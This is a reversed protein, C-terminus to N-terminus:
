GMMLDTYTLGKVHKIMDTSINYNRWEGKEEFYVHKEDSIMDITYKKGCLNKMNTIFGFLCKISSGSMGFEKEMEDWQKFEVLDGPQFM